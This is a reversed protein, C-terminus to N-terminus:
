LWNVSSRYYRHRYHSFYKNYIFNLHSETAM